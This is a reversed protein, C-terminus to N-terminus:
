REAKVVPRGYVSTTAPKPEGRHKSWVQLKYAGVLIAILMTASYGGSIVDKLFSYSISVKNNLVLWAPVDFLIRQESWNLKGQTLGLWQNPVIGFIIIMELTFLFAAVTARAWTLPRDFIWGYVMAGILIQSGLFGTAQGLTPLVWCSTATHEFWACRPVWSYIARGVDDKLPLGTFHTVVVGVALLLLGVGVGIAGIRQRKHDTVPRSEEELDPPM